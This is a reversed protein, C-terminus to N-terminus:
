DLDAVWVDFDGSRRDSWALRGDHYAMPAIWPLVAGQPTVRVQEADAAIHAGYIAYPGDRTDLWMVLDDALVLPGYRSLTDIKLRTRGANRDVVVVHMECGDPDYCAYRAGQKFALLGGSLTVQWVDSQPLDEEPSIWEREGSDIRVLAIRWRWITRDYDTFAVFGNAISVGEGARPSYVDITRTEGTALDHVRVGRDGGWPTLWAIETGDVAPPVSADALEGQATLTVPVAHPEIRLMKVAGREDYLGRTVETWAVFGDGVVPRAQGVPIRALVENRDLSVVTLYGACDLDEASTYCGGNQDEGYDVFALVGARLGPASQDGVGGYAPNKAGPDVQLGGREPGVDPGSGCGLLAGAVALLFCARLMSTTAPPVM